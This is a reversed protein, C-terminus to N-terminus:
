ETILARLAMFDTKGTGLVPLVDLVEVKALHVLPSVGAFHLAEQVESLSLATDSFVVFTM